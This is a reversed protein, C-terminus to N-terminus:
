DVVPVMITSLKRLRRGPAPQNAAFEMLATNFALSLKTLEDDTLYLGVSRFGAGDKMPDASPHSIYRSYDSMLSMTFHYFLNMMKVPTWSAVTENLEEIPNLHIRYVKELTGRIRNEAAVELIDDQVLRNIHRYLSAPPVDNLAESLDKVTATEKQIVEQLIRMRIPHIMSEFTKFDM